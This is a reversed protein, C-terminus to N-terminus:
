SSSVEDVATVLTRISIVELGASYGGYLNAEVRGLIHLLYRPAITNTSTSTMPRKVWLGMCGYMPM